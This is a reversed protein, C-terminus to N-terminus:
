SNLASSFPFPVPHLSAAPVESGLAMGAHACVCRHAAGPLGAGAGQMHCGEEELGQEGMQSQQKRGRYVLAPFVVSVGFLCVGHPSVPQGWLSSLQVGTDTRTDPGERCTYLPSM